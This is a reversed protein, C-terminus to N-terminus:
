KHAFLVELPMESHLARKIALCEDFKFQSDGRVKGVLTQYKIGTKESLQLINCRNKAMEINLNEYM